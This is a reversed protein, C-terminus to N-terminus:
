SLDTRWDKRESEARVLKDVGRGFWLGLTRVGLKAAEFVRRSNWPIIAREYGKEILIKGAIAQVIACEARSMRTRWKFRNTPDLARTAKEKWPERDPDLNKEKEQHFDLMSPEYSCDLFGCLKRLMVEPAELLDEYRLEFFPVDSRKVLEDSLRAYRRWRIAHDVATQYQNWPVRRLSLSVDRPDRIMGVFVAEPFIKHIVQVYELHSPTKEGWYPKDSRSAFRALVAELIERHGPDEVTTLREKIVRVEESSFGIDGVGPQRLLCDLLQRAHGTGNVDAGDWCRTFYHTEPSIAIESHANLIVSVLSTGSRPMGVVFIPYRM